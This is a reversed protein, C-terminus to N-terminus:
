KVKTRSLPWGVFAHGWIFLNNALLVFVSVPVIRQDGSHALAFNEFTSKTEFSIWVSRNPGKKRM